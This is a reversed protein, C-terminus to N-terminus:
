LIGNNALTSKHRLLETNFYTVFRHVYIYATVLDVTISLARFNPTVSVTLRQLGNTRPM